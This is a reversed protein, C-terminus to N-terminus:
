HSMYYPIAPGLVAVECHELNFHSHGQGLM